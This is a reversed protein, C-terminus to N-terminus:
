KINVIPLMLYIYEYSQPKLRYKEHTRAGWSNDGGVGTQKFDINLSILERPKIDITHRQQKEEGPDFDSIYNYHASFSILPMGQFKLGEGHENTLKIWRNETRYGNEQPRAYPFYLDKVKADYIGVFASEKRDWYNEHPGRGYWEVNDYEVPLILNNGFRPMEAIDEKGGYEFHNAVLISGDTYVTYLVKYTSNVAAINYMLEVEVSEKSKNLVEVSIIKQNESAEKWIQGRKQLQNGFDNDTPARWFNIKPGQEILEIGNFVYSSLAGKNKNFEVNLMKNSVTINDSTNKVKLKDLKETVEALHNKENTRLQFQQKAVIHGKPILNEETKTQVYFNVFYENNDLPIDLNEIRFVASDQSKVDFEDLTGTKISAGNKLIEYNVDFEKLNTFFFRNIVKFEYKTSDQVEFAVNQYVDKVEFLAPHPTRDADVLGNLVFNGDNHYREPEFDGGYAWYETGTSDTKVLGQDVWDWIFGGQHQKHEYVYNWLDILNGTSNGMSHAYECWIFPREPYSGMYGEGIGDLTAYMWSIIDTHREKFNKGREAREYQVPRSSDRNKIWHYNKVFNIGDGAENGMSWIIVSAHNKDREVMRYIRDHHMKAFEPKNGPTKDEDYGFGHSEINAEDVVYIGYKDCLEYWYPDNPYHSTRVANINYNKFLEVDKLMSEKSIVHGNLNDHEHRNVGKILIPQGNVLLNGGKIEVKRFGIKASTAMLMEKASSLTITVTYLNPDEANWHRIGEVDASVYLSDKEKNNLNTWKTQQYVIKEDDWIKLNVQFDGKIREKNELIINASLIGDEYEEDLTANLFFDRISTKPKSFLYVDREIGSLRWFDQDQLYSADTWRSVEVSVENEGENLYATINFEAPTKTGEKYGVKEGNVWVYFASNVGGFHLYVEHEDWDEPLNFKRKYSGVPNYSNDVYPPNVPFPYRINTYLPFDYGQLQWDGPVQINDWGSTNFDTKYFNEPRKEPTESFHFKWIGNLSQYNTSNEYDNVKAEAESNYTYFTARPAETNISVVELNEWERKQQSFSNLVFFVALFMFYLRFNYKM